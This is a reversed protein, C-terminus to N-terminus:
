TGARKPLFYIGTTISDLSLLDFEQYNQLNNSFTSKGVGPLGSLIVIKKKIM